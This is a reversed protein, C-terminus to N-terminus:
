YLGIYKVLHQLDILKRTSQHYYDNKKGYILESIDPVANQLIELDVSSKSSKVKSKILENMWPSDMDHFILINNPIFNLFVNTVTDNLIKIQNNVDKRDLLM